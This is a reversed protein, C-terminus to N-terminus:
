RLSSAGSLPQWLSVLGDLHGAKRLVAATLSGSRPDLGFVGYIAARAGAFMSFDFGDDKPERDVIVLDRAIGRDEEFWRRVENEGGLADVLRNKLGQQGSFISGDALAKAEAMSMDRREAVLAVFWEYTDMVLRNIMEKAAEPAPAFPSPEAKLPASKIANIQVGVTDLLQSADVYQFIVGISGVISTRRAVIHDAGSAIMYGASAALTGVEAAVPKVEAIARVAEYISEGGVTTGGPSDIRLVVAKVADEDKLRDLLDLLKQDKLIMGEISVRAIQDKSTAMRDASLAYAGAAIAVAVILIAAVRWFSLKRRLRRRDILDEIASM